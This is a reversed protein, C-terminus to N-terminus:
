LDHGPPLPQRGPLDDDVRRGGRRGVHGLWAWYTGVAACHRQRASHGARDRPRDGVLPVPVSRLPRHLCCAPPVPPSM